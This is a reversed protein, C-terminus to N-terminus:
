TFRHGDGGDLTWFDLCLNGRQGSKYVSRDPELSTLHGYKM